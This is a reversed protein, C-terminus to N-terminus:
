LNVDHAATAAFLGNTAVPAVAFGQLRVTQGALSPPILYYLDIGGPPLGPAQLPPLVAGYMLFATNVNMQIAPFGPTTGAGQGTPRLYGFLLPAAGVFTGGPTAVRVRVVHNAAATITSALPDGAGDVWTDLDLDENSGPFATAPKEDVGMDVVGGIVRPSGDIDVSPLGSATPNGANVCPSSSSLHFDGGAADVFRPDSTITGPGFTWNGVGVDSFSATITATGFAAANLPVNGHVVSNQVTVQVQSANGATVYLGGSSQPNGGNSAITSADITVGGGGGDVSVGSGNGTIQCGSLTVLTAVSYFGVSLGVVGPNNTIRVRQLQVASCESCAIAVVSTNSAITCNVLTPSLTGANRLFTLTGGSGAYNSFFTGGIVTCGTLTPLLSGGNAVFLCASTARSQQALAVGQEFRCNTVTPASVGTALTCYIGAASDGTAQTTAAVCNLFRCNTITPSANQILVGGGGATITFGNLVSNPGENTSFTIAKVGTGTAITTVGSGGASTVTVARGLFNITGSYTGPQVSVTDGNSSASIAAQITPYQSPVNRTTQAFAAAAVLCLGTISTLSRHIRM